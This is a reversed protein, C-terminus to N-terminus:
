SHYGIQKRARELPSLVKKDGSNYKNAAELAALYLKLKEEAITEPSDGNVPVSNVVAIAFDHADIKSESM